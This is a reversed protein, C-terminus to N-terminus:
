RQPSTMLVNRAKRLPRRKGQALFSAKVMCSLHVYCPASKTKPSFTNIASTLRNGQTESPHHISSPHIISVGPTRSTSGVFIKLLSISLWMYLPNYRYLLNLCMPVPAGTEDQHRKRCKLIVDIYLCSKVLLHCTCWCGLFYNLYYPAWHKRWIEGICTPVIGLEKPTDSPPRDLTNEDGPLRCEKAM